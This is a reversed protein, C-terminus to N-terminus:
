LVYLGVRFGYPADWPSNCTDFRGSANLNPSYYGSGRLVFPGDLKYVATLSNETTWESLNGSMDYLNCVVDSSTGTNHLSSDGHPKVAYNTITSCNQIFVLATDWMYSNFLDSVVFENGNYMNRAAVSANTQYSSVPSVGFKSDGTETNSAEYRGLYYGKNEQTKIIFQALNLATANAYDDGVRSVTLESICLSGYHTEPVYVRDVYDDASQELIPTGDSAFTYRGFDITVPTDDSKTITGIPIWVFQNSNSDEIVIGQDVTTALDTRVKFGGPVLIKNGKADQYEKTASQINTATTVLPKGVIITITAYDTGGNEKDVTCQIIHTGVSLSTTNSIPNNNDSTNIYEKKSIPADGNQEVDFYTAIDYSDKEYITVTDTTATVIPDNPDIKNITLSASVINGAKDQAKATVTQNNTKVEVSMTGNATYDAENTGTCILSIPTLNSGYTATVTIPGKTWDTKDASLKIANTEITADEVVFAESKQITVAKNGATDLVNTWLYWSGTATIDSKVVEQGETFNTWSTPEEGQTWAYQRTAVESGGEDNTILTTKITANGTIETGNTPMVYGTGGNPTITVTPKQKDINGIELTAKKLEQGTSDEVKAIIETNEEITIPGIYENWTKGADTSVQKSYYEANEPWTIEIVIDQNTWTELDAITAMEIDGNIPIQEIEGKGIYIVEWNGNQKKKLKIFM